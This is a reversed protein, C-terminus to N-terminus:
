DRITNYDGVSLDAQKGQLTVFNGVMSNTLNSNRLDSNEQSFAVTTATLMCFSLVIKKIM